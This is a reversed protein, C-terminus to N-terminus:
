LIQLLMLDLSIMDRLLLIGVPNYGLHRPQAYASDSNTVIGIEVRNLNLLNPPLMLDLSIM